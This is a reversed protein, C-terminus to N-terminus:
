PRWPANVPLRELLGLAVSGQEGNLLLLIRADVNDAVALLRTLVEHVTEQLSDPADIGHVLHFHADTGIAILRHHRM